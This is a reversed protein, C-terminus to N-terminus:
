VPQRPRARPGNKWILIIVLLESQFSELFIGYKIGNTDMRAKVGM